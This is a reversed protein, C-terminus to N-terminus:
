FGLSLGVRGNRRATRFGNEYYENDFVNEVTGFLRFSLKDRRIRFTYGGTVDARRNGSFRFTHTSFTSNSFIPALYSSTALLDINVWLDKYRQTAVLTFQHNPVGYTRRDTGALTAPPLWTLRRFARIDSNVFSYSAFIETQSAPTVTASFEAGRSFHRDANFYAPGGLDDTPLYAIEDRIENYFYTASLKLRDRYFSQDVGLDAALSREPKLAPNGLGFFSGLFFYSGFREYLSPIRYGNGVHSRIKTGTAAIFYSVSGDGTYSAPPEVVGAFRNPFNPSSFEPRGLSFWQARFAGSFQLRNDLFGVLDQVFVTNSSQSASLAFNNATSVFRGDNGFEEIEREFGATLLNGRASWDLKGSITHIQGDFDYVEDGSFPQFGTGAPGNTNRRSTRTGSYYGQLVFGSGFAQTVVFQGSLFKSRQRNDPDNADPLFNVGPRADIVGGAPLVGLTDPSNNLKVYADSVFIRGSINTTSFPKFEIRTQFNTNDARDDDDIGETYATRSLGVNFGFKEDLFGRSLNGRFRGLGFGGFAGSVTGHWGPATPAPTQFDIAGGIANTGYLSSGAGRLVEIKSVGTLTFDSLFASADGAISSADRFRIGDILVATDQNRLGRSKVSATRGFGGLQQIRFGPITRLTEILSLDARDRMEQAGIVGVTKSVQEAVQNTDAAITVYERISHRSDYVAGSLKLDVTESRGDRIRALGFAGGLAAGSVNPNPAPGRKEAWIQYNGPPLNDFRYFGAADTRTATRKLPNSIPYIEVSADAAPAGDLTITGSVSGGGQASLTTFFALAAIAASLFKM